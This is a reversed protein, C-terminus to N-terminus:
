RGSNGGSRNTTSADVQQNMIWEELDLGAKALRKIDALTDISLPGFSLLYGDDFRGEIRAIIALLAEEVKM